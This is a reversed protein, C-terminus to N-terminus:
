GGGAGSRRLTASVRALFLRPDLPKQLYDDAGDEILDAETTPDETGTLVVISLREAGPTGRLRRVLERGGMGPMHLDVVALSIGPHGSFRELAEAGDAAEVVRYEKRELVARAVMRAGPDDDVVLITCLGPAPAQGRGRAAALGPNRPDPAASLAARLEGPPVVVFVPTRGTVRRIEAETALDVPDSTAIRIAKGDEDLPLVSRERLLADPVLRLAGSTPRLPEPGPVGYFTAVRRALEGPAVGLATAVRDWAEDLTAAAHPPLGLAAPLWAYAGQEAPDDPWATRRLISIMGEVLRSLSKPPGDELMAGADSITKLSKPWPM